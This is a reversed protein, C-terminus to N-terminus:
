KAPGPGGGEGGDKGLGSLKSIMHKLDIGSVAELAPPLSAMINTVDKTVKSAGASDGGTSVVVIKETKSLPEAIRGALNPLMEIFMQTIAAEGYLKWSEAKKEMAEAEALGQAKIVEAAALGQAKRAEAEAIGKAKVVDAEAFGRAKTASAAGAAETELKFKEAEALTQVRSREAEAPKQITAELEKQRRLIEQEQVQIRSQKEVFEVQVEEKKVSQGTKFRQLDYALDAEAKKLNVSAQYEALRMQYDRNSQAVVTDAEFKATQGAQNAQASKITSDRDAEAQAIIADRKVQATRPKGLADLYGQNDRIDRITFSVIQLGMNAMDGSAVEQVKVAFADRNQYIEEVTLTGLIARLHGELTQLAVRQIEVPDKSLFQEAATRVSVDDGRVKVQAVGDVLVPVGKITYVEPTKVDITMIELSLFDVKELVPWVFVGGGRVIRYGVTEGTEIRRKIGSIVLVQNPGVKTYRSAFVVAFLFAMFLLVVVVGIIFPDLEALVPFM